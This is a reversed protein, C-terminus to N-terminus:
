PQIPGTLAEWAPKLEALRERVASLVVQVRAPLMTRHPTVGFIGLEAHAMTWEPLLRILSGEALERAVSFPPMATVALGQRAAEILLQSTDFALGCGEMRVTVQEGGREFTRDQQRLAKGWVMWHASLDAPTKVEPHAAVWAPSAIAVYRWTALKRSILSSDPLRGVRVALEYGRDVLPILSEGTSLEVKLEPHADRVAALAPVLVTQALSQASAVRVTGVVQDPARTRVLAAVADALPERAEEVLRLGAPTVHISRTTRNLLRVGLADELAKVRRSLVSKDSGTRRAAATFSGADVVDLFAALQPLLTTTSIAVTSPRDPEM